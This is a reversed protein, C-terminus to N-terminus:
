GKHDIYTVLDAAAAIKRSAMSGTLALETNENRKVFLEHLDAENWADLIGDLIVLDYKGSSIRKLTEHLHEYYESESDACPFFSYGSRENDRLLRFNEEIERDKKMFQAFWINFEAGSGRIALGLVINTKGSNSEGIYLHVMRKDM